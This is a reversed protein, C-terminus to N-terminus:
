QPNIIATAATTVSRKEGHGDYMTITVLNGLPHWSKLNINNNTETLPLTKASILYTSTNNTNPDTTKNLADALMLRSSHKTIQRLYIKQPNSGNYNSHRLDTLKNDELFPYISMGFAAELDPLSSKKRGKDWQSCGQLVTAKLNPRSADHKRAELYDFLILTSWFTQIPDATKTTRLAPLVGGNDRSYAICGLAAQRQSSLCRLSSASAKVTAIAPMLIAILIAIFSIVALLETLSFGWRPLDPEGLRPDYAPM